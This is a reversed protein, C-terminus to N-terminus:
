EVQQIGDLKWSGGQVPRMFHWVERVTSPAQQDPSERMLVDFFVQAFQENGENEVGLLQANVLLIETNSPNPDAEMQERVAHQVASSTFQSIDDMDRKDWSNQLRTYAMKAGRLFEDADFGEPMPINPGAAAQAAAGQSNGRLVDWGNSETSERQMGQMRDNYADSHQGHARAAASAQ